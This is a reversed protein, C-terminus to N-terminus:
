GGAGGEAVEVRAGFGVLELERHPFRPARTGHLHFQRRIRQRLPTRPHVNAIRRPHQILPALSPNHQGHTPPPNIRPHM